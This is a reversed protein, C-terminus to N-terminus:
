SFKLLYFLRTYCMGRKKQVYAKNIAGLLRNFVNEKHLSNYVCTFDGFMIFDRKSASTQGQKRQLGTLDQNYCNSNLLVDTDEYEKGYNENNGSRYSSDSHLMSHNQTTLILLFPNHTLTIKKKGVYCFSSYTYINTRYISTPEIYLHFMSKCKASHIPMTCNGSIRSETNWTLCGTLYQYNNAEKILRLMPRYNTFNFAQSSLYYTSSSTLLDLTMPNISHRNVEKNETWQQGSLPGSSM